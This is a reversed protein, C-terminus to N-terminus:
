LSRRRVIVCVQAQEGGCEIRDVRPGEAGIELVVADMHEQLPLEMIGHEALEAPRGRDRRVDHHRPMLQSLGDLKQRRKAVALHYRLLAVVGVIM